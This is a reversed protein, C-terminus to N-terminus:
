TAWQGIIQSVVRAIIQDVGDGNTLTQKLFLHLDFGPAGFCMFGHSVWINATPTTVFSFGQTSILFNDSLLM